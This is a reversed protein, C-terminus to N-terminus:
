LTKYKLNNGKETIELYCNKTKNSISPLSILLQNDIDCQRKNKNVPEEEKKALMLYRRYGEVEKSVNLDSIM